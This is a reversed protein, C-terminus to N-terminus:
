DEIITYDVYTSEETDKYRKQQNSQFHGPTSVVISSKFKKVLYARFLKRGQPTLLLIGFLDTFIGPTILVIGAVLLLVGDILEDKPLNGAQLEKQIKGWVAIGERKALYAGVAGTTLVLLITSPAGIASGITILTYLEIIPVTIFLIFLKMFM